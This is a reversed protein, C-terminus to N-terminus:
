SKNEFADRKLNLEVGVVIVVVAVMVGMGTVLRAEDDDAAADAVDLREPVAM